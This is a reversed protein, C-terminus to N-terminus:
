ANNGGQGNMKALYNDLSSCIANYEEVSITAPDQKGCRELIRKDVAAKDMGVAEGKKYLRQMQAESLKEPAVKGAAANNFNDPDDEGQDISFREFLYYKLAYTHACGKAKAPDDNWGIAHIVTEITDDENDLNIWKIKLDCEYLFMLRDGNRTKVAMAECFLPDGNAAHRTAKEEVIDFDVGIENMVPVIRAWVDDIKNFKYKVEDSTASKVIKPCAKRLEVLKESLSCKYLDNVAPPETGTVESKDTNNAESM